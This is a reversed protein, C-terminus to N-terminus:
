GPTTSALAVPFVQGSGFQRLLVSAFTFTWGSDVTDDILLVPSPLPQGRVEFAGDLNMCQHYSNQQTKQPESKGTSGLVQRFPLRLRHGLREAFSQVLAPNKASPVCTIWEPTPNPKWRGIMDAVAVVIEDGFLGQRKGNKVKSGWGADGWQSLVRGESARHELSLRGSYGYPKANPPIQIRPHIPHDMRRLFRQAEIALGENLDIAETEMAQCNDCRGCERAESDNLAEQLFYMRCDNTHIYEKLEKWERERQSTLRAVRKSDFQYASSTRSWKAQGRLKVIPSPSEVALFKAIKDIQKSRLNLHRSLEINSMGESQELCQILRLVQQEPPFANKRFFEVIESDETGSLLVGFATPVARGARGVQQYYDVVSGPSQFHIVFRVDPKDYGMGLANTAVLAKVKNKLLISELHERCKYIDAGHVECKKENQMPRCRVGAFYARADIGQSKLWDAVTNATRKTLTYIIGTGNIRHLTKAIWALRSAQDPLVHAQLHLSERALNGRTIHIRPLQHRIDEIVRNNATATTGIVPLSRPLHELIKVIRRYDPRFDHGWDSICHAEDIVLMGVHSAVRSLIRDEFRQSALREPAIWLMDVQRQHIRGEIEDWDKNNSSNITAANLGLRKAAAVQNRMLALLPSVVLTLGRGRDRLLKTALFYVMSKGWGTRQVVLLQRRDNVLQEIAEWQDIRFQARADDLGVRLLQEAEARVAVRIGGKNM